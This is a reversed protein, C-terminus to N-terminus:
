QARVGCEEGYEAPLRVINSINDKLQFLKAHYGNRLSVLSTTCQFQANILTSFCSEDNLLSPQNSLFWFKGNEGIRHAYRAISRHIEDSSKVFAVLFEDGAQCHDSDVLFERSINEVISRFEKPTRLFVITPNSDEATHGEFPAFPYDLQRLFDRADSTLPTM